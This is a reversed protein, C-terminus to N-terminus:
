VLINQLDNSTMKNIKGKPLQIRGNVVKSYEKAIKLGNKILVTKRQSIM